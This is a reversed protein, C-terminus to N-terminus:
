LPPSTMDLYKNACQPHLTFYRQVILRLSKDRDYKSLPNLFLSLARTPAPSFTTVQHVVAPRHSNHKLTLTAPDGPQQLHYHSQNRKHPFHMSFVVSDTNAPAFVPVSFNSGSRAYMHLVLNHTAQDIQQSLCLPNADWVAALFDLYETIGRVSGFTTGACSVVGHEICDIRAAKKWEGFCSNLLWNVNIGGHKMDMGELSFLVYDMPQTQNDLQQQQQKPRHNRHRYPANLPTTDRLYSPLIAFPDTQFYVDAADTILIHCYEKPAAQKIYERMVLLRDIMMHVKPNPRVLLPEVGMKRLIQVADEGPLKSLRASILVVFDTSAIGALHKSCTIIRLAKTTEELTEYLATGIILNKACTAAHSAVVLYALLLLVVM